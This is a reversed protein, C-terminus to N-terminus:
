AANPFSFGSYNIMEGTGKQLSLSLQKLAKNEEQLSTNLEMLASKESELLEIRGRSLRFVEDDRVVQVAETVAANTKTIVPESDVNRERTKRSKKHSKEHRKRDRLASESPGDRSNLEANDPHLPRNRREDRLSSETRSIYSEGTDFDTYSVHQRSRKREGEVEDHYSGADRIKQGYMLEDDKENSYEDSIKRQQRRERKDKKDLREEDYSSTRLNGRDDIRNLRQEDYRPADVGSKEEREDLREKRSASASSLKKRWQAEAEAHKRTMEELEQELQRSRAEQEKIRAQLM